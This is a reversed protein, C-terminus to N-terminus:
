KFIFNFLMLLKTRSISFIDSYTCELGVLRILAYLLVKPKVINKLFKSM